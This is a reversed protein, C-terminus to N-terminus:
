SIPPTYRKLNIKHKFIISKQIYFNMFFLIAEIALKMFIVNFGFYNNMTHIFFYVIYTNSVLLLAFKFIQLWYKKKDKFVFSKALKFQIYGSITRSLIISLLINHAIYFFVTFVFFDIAASILSTSSYRIFTFYIRMSDLLPNFHSGKNNNEYITLIPIETFEVHMDRAVILMSLEYDYRNSKIRLLNPLLHIPIARLGTQTDSLTFGVFFKFVYKTVKNGIKSRLPVDEDFKRCGLILNHPKKKFVEIVNQVDDTHHQGDADLTIVGQCSPHNLLIYEFATKLAAGKGKNLYHRLLTVNKILKAENFISKYHEGSGDDVVIVQFRELNKLVNLMSTEPKYAPIILIINENEM